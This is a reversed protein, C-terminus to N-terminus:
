TSFAAMRRVGEELKDDAGVFSLRAYGEAGFALGPIVLTDHTELLKLAFSLSDNALAGRLKVFVYFAGDPKVYSLGARDLAGTIVRLKDLYSQRHATIIQPQKFIEIAAVQGYTNTSSVLFQHAKHLEPAEAKPALFWGIRLGTLACSKSLSGVVITHPWYVAPSVPAEAGFYLERYVEDSVIYVPPGKRAALGKGLKELEGVSWTRGTPNVPSALVIIRTADGLAALVVDARPTFGDDASLAVSRWRVGFLGCLKTYLPYAPEIVLVEDHEPDALAALAVSLAEQSGVTIGVQSADTLGPYAHYRAVAERLPQLGPNPSYPCGNQEVWALAARLPAPDPLLTPEGLGLDISTPKKKANLERIMSPQLAVLKPNM